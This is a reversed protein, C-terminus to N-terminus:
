TAARWARLQEPTPHSGWGQGVEPSSDVFTEFRPLSLGHERMLESVTAFADLTAPIDSAYWTGASCEIAANALRSYHVVLQDPIAALLGTALPESWTSAPLVQFGQEWATFTEPTVTAVGWLHEVFADIALHRIGYHTCFRHVCIAAICQRAIVSLKAAPIEPVQM